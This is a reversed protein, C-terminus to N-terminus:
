RNNSIFDIRLRIDWNVFVFFFLSYFVQVELGTCKGHWKQKM